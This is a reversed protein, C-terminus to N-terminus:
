GGSTTGIAWQYSSISNADTFGSWNASITTTSSQFSIDPATSGDNVTGATPATADVTVGNSSADAHNSAPDFARLTVYYKTGNVLPLSGATATTGSIGTSTFAIVNRGGSTTGIAWQYSSISVENSFGSWNANI